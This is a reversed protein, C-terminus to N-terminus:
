KKASNKETNHEEAWEKDSRGAYFDACILELCRGISLDDGCELRVNEIARDIIEKQERTVTFTIDEMEPKEEKDNNIEGDTGDDTFKDWDTDAIKLFNEMEIDTFPLELDEEISLEKVLFALSVENFLVQQQYWITLEKAEKDSIFGENYILLKKFGLEKCATYRQEGDIIEYGIEGKVERVVVPLRQGKLSIGKKIKHYEETNKDKPNWTNPRIEEINIISAKTIDWEIREM